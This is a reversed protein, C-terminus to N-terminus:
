CTPDQHIWFHQLESSGVPLDTLTVDVSGDPNPAVDQTLSTPGVLVIRVFDRQSQQQAAEAASGANAAKTVAPDPSQGEAAAPAVSPNPEGADAAAAQRGKGDAEATPQAEEYPVVILVLSGTGGLGTPDDKCALIVATSLVALFVLPKLTM